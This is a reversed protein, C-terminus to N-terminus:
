QKRIKVRIPLKGLRLTDGDVLLEPLYPTLRKGNLYTGNISSLDEIVVMAEQKLIQAHRRSISKSLDGNQSLDVEPFVNTAPDVRGLLVVRELSVEVVQPMEG